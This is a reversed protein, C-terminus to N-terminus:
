QSYKRKSGASTSPSNSARLKHIFFTGSLNPDLDGHDVLFPDEGQEMQLIETGEAEADYELEHMKNGDTTNASTKGNDRMKPTQLIRPPREPAAKSMDWNEIDVDFGGSDITADPDESLVIDLTSDASRQLAKELLETVIVETNSNKLAEHYKAIADGIKGKLHYIMGISAHADSNKPNVSL